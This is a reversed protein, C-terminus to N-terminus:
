ALAETNTQESSPILDCIQLGKPLGRDRLPLMGIVPPAAPVLNERFETPNPIMGLMVTINIKVTYYVIFM